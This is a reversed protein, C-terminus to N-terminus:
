RLGCITTDAVKQLKDYVKLYFFTTRDWRWRTGKKNTIIIRLSVTINKM